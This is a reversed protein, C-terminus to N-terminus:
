VFVALQQVQGLVNMSKDAVSINVVQDIVSNCDVARRSYARTCCM